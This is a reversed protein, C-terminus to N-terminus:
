RESFPSPLIAKFPRVTTGQMANGAIALGNASIVQAVFDVKWGDLNAGAKELREQFSLPSEIVCPIENNEEADEAGGIIADLSPKM